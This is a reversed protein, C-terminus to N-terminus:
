KYYADEHLYHIYRRQRVKNEDLRKIVTSIHSKGLLGWGCAGHRIGSLGGCASLDHYCGAPRRQKRGGDDEKVFMSARGTM